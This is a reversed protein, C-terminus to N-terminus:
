RTETFDTNMIWRRSMILFAAACMVFYVCSWWLPLGYASEGLRNALFQLQTVGSHAALLGHSMPVIPVLWEAVGGPIFNISFVWAMFAPVSVSLVLSAKLKVACVAVVCLFLADWLFVTLLLLLLTAPLERTYELGNCVGVAAGTAMAITNFLFSVGALKAIKGFLWRDRRDTRSFIYVSVTPIDAGIFEAFLIMQATLPLMAVLSEFFAIGEFPLAAGFTVILLSSIDTIYGRMQALRNLCMLLSLAAAISLKVLM